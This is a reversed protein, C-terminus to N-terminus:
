KETMLAILLRVVRGGDLGPLPLLNFVGAALFAGSLLYWEEGARALMAAGLVNVGPGALVCLLERGYGMRGTETQIDAGRLSLRLAHLRGGCLRLAALHAGEHCLCALFVAPWLREGPWLAGLAALLFFGPSVYVRGLRM